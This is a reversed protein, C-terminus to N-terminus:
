ILLYLINPIARKSLRMRAKSQGQAVNSLYVHQLASKKSAMSSSSLALDTKSAAKPCFCSSVLHAEALNAVIAIHHHWAQINARVNVASLAAASAVSTGAGLGWCRLLKVTSFSARLLFFHKSNGGLM